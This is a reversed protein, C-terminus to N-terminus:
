SMVRKKVPQEHKQINSDDVFGRNGHYSIVDFIYSCRLVRRDSFRNFIYGFSQPYTDAGGFIYSSEKENYWKFYAKKLCLMMIM